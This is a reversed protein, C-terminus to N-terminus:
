KVLTAEYAEVDINLANDIAAHIDVFTGSLEGDCMKIAEDATYAEVEVHTYISISLPVRWLKLVKPKKLKKESKQKAM